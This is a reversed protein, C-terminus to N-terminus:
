RANGLRKKLKKVVVAHPIAKGQKFQKLSTQIDRLTEIGGIMSEYNSIGMAIATQKGQHTVIVPGGSKNM